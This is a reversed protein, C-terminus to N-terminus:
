RSAAPERHQEPLLVYAAPDGAVAAVRELEDPRPPWTRYPLSVARGAALGLVVPVAFPVLAWLADRRRWSVRPLVVVLTALLVAHGALALAPLAGLHEPAGQQLAALALFDVGSLTAGALAGAIASTAVVSSAVRPQGPPAVTTAEPEHGPARWRLPGFTAPDVQQGPEADPAALVHHLRVGPVVRVRHEDEPRPPWDRWPLDALRFGVRAAVFWGWVPILWMFADRRRYGVHPLVVALLAVVALAGLAEPWNVVSTPLHGDADTREVLAPVAFRSTGEAVALAAAGAIYRLAPDRPRRAPTEQPTALGVLRGRSVRWHAEGM